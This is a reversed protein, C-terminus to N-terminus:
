PQVEETYTPIRRDKGDDSDDAESISVEVYYRTDDMEFYANQFPPFTLARLKDIVHGITTEKELDLEWLDVFDSKRHFTEETGIEQLQTDVTADRIDPWVNVFQEFQADELREYLDRADDDPRKRVKRRAIIPGSDLEETMYHMTVGAPTDEVISWVNPNAGRNYPLYAKHLNVAGRDPIDLIDGPVIHRFGASVLLEPELERVVNLQNKETILAMVNAEDRDVLWDYLRDGIDNLGLFIIDVM